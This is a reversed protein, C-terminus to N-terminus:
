PLKDVVWDNKGSEIMIIDSARRAVRSGHVIVLVVPFDYRGTHGTGRAIEFSRGKGSSFYEELQDANQLHRLGDSLEVMGNEMDGTQWAHLFHNAAALAYVYGADSLDDKAPHRTRARGSATLIVSVLFICVALRLNV